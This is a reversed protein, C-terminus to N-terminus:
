ADSLSAPTDLTRLELRHGRLIEGILRAQGYQVRFFERDSRLRFEELATHALAALVLKAAAQREAATGRKPPAMGFGWKEAVRFQKPDKGVLV